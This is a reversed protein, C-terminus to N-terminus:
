RSRLDRRVRRWTQEYITTRPGVAVRVLGNPTRPVYVGDM